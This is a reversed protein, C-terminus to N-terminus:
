VLKSPLKGEGEGGEGGVLFVVVGCGKKEKIQKNMEKQKKTTTTKFITKTSSYNLNPSSKIANTSQLLCCSPNRNHSLPHFQSINLCSFVRFLNGCDRWEERRVGGVGMGEKRGRGGRGRGEGCACVCVSLPKNRKITTKSILTEDVILPFAQM